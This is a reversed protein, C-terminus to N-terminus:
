HQGRSKMTRGKKRTFDSEDRPEEKRTAQERRRHLAQDIANKNSNLLEAIEPSSLGACHLLWAQEGLPLGRCASMATIKILVDLRKRIVETHQEDNM